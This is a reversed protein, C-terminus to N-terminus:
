VFLLWATWATARFQYCRGFHTVHTALSFGPEELVCIVYIERILVDVHAVPFTFVNM